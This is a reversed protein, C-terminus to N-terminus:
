LDMWERWRITSPGPLDMNLKVEDPGVGLICAALGLSPASQGVGFGAWAISDTEYSKTHYADGAHHDVQADEGQRVIVKRWPPWIGGVREYHGIESSEKDAHEGVKQEVVKPRPAIAFFSTVGM